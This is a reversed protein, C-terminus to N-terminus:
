PLRVFDTVAGPQIVRVGTVRGAADQQFEITTGRQVRIVFRAGDEPELETPTLGQAWLLVNGRLSITVTPGGPVQYRGVFRQLYAADKLRADPQRVFTIPAVTPELPAMLADVRGAANTRFTVQANEFTPDDPNRLGSFTEYHWPDLKARIGHYEFVLTDRELTVNATGYGSDAYAGVYAALPHSPPANPIRAEGKKEEAARSTRNAIASRALAEGSWDRRADGLLRDMAHRAVLEGLASGNQNVLVVIGIRDLPLLQVAATFGDINGGHQSRYHGRYTDVFWGMGYSMPGLERDEGVGSIPTYPRYMDRLTAPQIVQKDGLKGGNLHLTVWKLMDEASSNIAGAPGVLTIDRFPIREITDRRVRYPVAHDKDATSQKVSFNTRTMGLPALVLQRLGDEWSTGNITGVLYGATLFMLNNYQFTERLDRSLPLYALRRVLEERTSTTNNYWLLDHRPLGSRHTVLDRPTLHLTAFDTNMRFWPLYTRVPVDWQLKGQDVLAGMAFTTFAKSSSGIAFLTQPTVPQNAERDRQGHGKLYVVEGDVVIGVALGVAKWAVRASDIWRDFGDLAARALEAPKAALSMSFPFSGPGQTFTGSITRGGATRTGAFTPNGPVGPITFRASDGKVSVASLVLDKTNQQPISIDGGCSGDGKKALDVDFALKTGPLEIAGVWHGSCPETAQARAAHPALAISAFALAGSRAVLRGAFSMM